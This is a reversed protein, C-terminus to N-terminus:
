SAAPTPSDVAYAQGTADASQGAGGFSQQVREPVALHVDEPHREAADHGLLQGM